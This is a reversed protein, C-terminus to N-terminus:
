GAADQVVTNGEGRTRYPSREDTKFQIGLDQPSFRRTYEMENRKELAERIGYLEVAITRLASNVDMLVSGARIVANNVDRIGFAM